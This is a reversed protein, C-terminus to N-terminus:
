AGELRVISQIKIPSRARELPTLQQTSEGDREATGQQTLGPASILIGQEDRPTERRRADETGDRKAASNRHMAASQGAGATASIRVKLPGM